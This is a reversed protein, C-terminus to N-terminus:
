QLIFCCFVLTNFFFVFFLDVQQMSWADTMNCTRANQGKSCDCPQGIPVKAARASAGWQRLSRDRRGQSKGWFVGLIWPDFTRYTRYPVTYLKGRKKKQPPSNPASPVRHILTPKIFADPYELYGFGFGLQRAVCTEVM